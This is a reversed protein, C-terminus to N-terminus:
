SDAQERKQKAVEKALILCVGQFLGHPICVEELIKRGFRREIEIALDRDSLRKGLKAYFSQLEHKLSDLWALAEPTPAIPSNHKLVGERLGESMARRMQFDWMTDVKVELRTFKVGLVYVLGVLSLMGPAMTILSSVDSPTM